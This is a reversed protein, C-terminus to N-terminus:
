TGNFAVRSNAPNSITVSFASISKDCSSLLRKISRNLYSLKPYRKTVSTVRKNIFDQQYADAFTDQKSPDMYGPLTSDSYLTRPM